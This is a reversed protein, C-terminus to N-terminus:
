QYLVAIADAYKAHIAKRRLKMTPTLLTGGPEWTEPLITFKKIQEVRALRENASRVGDAVAARVGPHTALDSLATSPIGHETAFDDVAEPDLTVLAVVYPLRDGVAVASGVLPCATKLANEINAPSMNKGADNVILEKKRDVVRVYGDDDISGIDGTHLWGDPDITESTRIPDNRYGKMVIPGRVLLEGDDAVRVEVGALPKGVTGVRISHPRDVTAVACLESMGWAECVPIGLGLMFEHVAPDIPAAGSAAFRVQNLGLKARITSLVVRDAIRHRLRLAPSAAGGARYMKVGTRIAWRPLARKVPNTEAALAQELKAKIKYWTQPVGIFITPNVETLAKIAEKPESLTTIQIGTLLNAWHCAWRNAAHADPLYSVVRDDPGMDFVQLAGFVNALLSAHTIEVGKPPGTTGSTYILTLVDDPSVARWARDFDFDPELDNEVARLSLTGPVSEEVCVVYEVCTGEAAALVHDAFQRECVVVRSSANRLLHRITEPPNTNYISFPIAGLHLAATDVLHFEPRNTLMLAVTDGHRVGLKTLGATLRRVKEAYQRWTITM